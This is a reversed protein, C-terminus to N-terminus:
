QFSHKKIDVRPQVNVTIAESRQDTLHPYKDTYGNTVLALTEQKGEEFDRTWSDCGEHLLSLIVRQTSKHDPNVLYWLCQKAHYEPDSSKYALRETVKKPEPVAPGADVMSQSQALAAGTLLCIVLFCRM